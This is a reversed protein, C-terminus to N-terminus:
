RVGKRIKVIAIVKSSDGHGEETNQDIEIICYDSFTEIRLSTELKEQEKELSSPVTMLTGVVILIVKVGMSRLKKPHKLFKRLLDLFQKIKENIEIKLRHDVSNALTVQCWASKKKNNLM